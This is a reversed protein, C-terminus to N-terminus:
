IFKSLYNLNGAYYLGCAARAAIEFEGKGCKKKKNKMLKKWHRTENFPFILFISYSRLAELAFLTFFQLRLGLSTFDCGHISRVRTYLTFFQCFLIKCFPSTSFFLNKSFNVNIRNSDSFRGDLSSWFTFLLLIIWIWNHHSLLRNITDSSPIAPHTPFSYLKILM